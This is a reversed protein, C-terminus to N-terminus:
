NELKKLFCDMLLKSEESSYVNESHRFYNSFKRFDDCIEIDRMVIVVNGIFSNELRESDSSTIFLANDYVNWNLCYDNQFCDPNTIITKCRECTVFPKLMRARMEFPVNCGLEKPVEYIRGTEVFNKIAGYATTLELVSNKDNGLMLQFHSIIMNALNPVSKAAPTAIADIIEEDVFTPCVTADYACIKKTLNDVTKRQFADLMKFPDDIMTTVPTLSQMFNELKNNFVPAVIDFDFVIANENLADFQIYYKDTALFYPLLLETNVIDTSFYTQYGLEAFHSSYFVNMLREKYNQSNKEVFHYYEDVEDNKICNYIVNCIESNYLYSFNTIIKSTKEKLVSFILSLVNAKGVYSSNMKIDIVPFEFPNKLYRVADGKIFGEILDFKELEDEGYKETYYARILNHMEDKSFLQLNVVDNLRKEPLAKKGSLISQFFSRDIGSSKSISYNTYKHEKIYQKLLSSFSDM